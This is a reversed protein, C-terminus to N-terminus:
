IASNQGVSNRLETYNRRTTKECQAALYCGKGACYRLDLCSRSIAVMDNRDPNIMRISHAKHGSGTKTMEYKFNHRACYDRLTRLFASNNFGDVMERLNDVSHWRWDQLAQYISKYKPTDM